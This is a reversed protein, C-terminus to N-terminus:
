KKGARCELKRRYPWFDRDRKRKQLTGIIGNNKLTRRLAERRYNKRYGAPEAKEFDAPMVVDNCRVEGPTIIINEVQAPLEPVSFRRRFFHAYILETKEGNEVAFLRGNEWLVVFQTSPAVKGWYFKEEAIIPDRRISLDEFVAIENCLCKTYMGGFEDFYFARPNSYCEQYNVAPYEPESYRYLSNMRECNRYLSIHGYYFVRDYTELVEDTIFKRIDGFLLDIDCYGWFDFGETYARFIEGYAPRFDCIKYPTKLSIRFPFHAQTASVMEQWAMHVVQINRESCVSRDDTFLVFRITDNRFATEKWVTYFKPLKGFYPIFVVISKM